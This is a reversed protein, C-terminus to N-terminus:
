REITTYQTGIKLSQVIDLVFCFILIDIFCSNKRIYTISYMPKNRSVNECFMSSLESESM